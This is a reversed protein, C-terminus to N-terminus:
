VQQLGISQPIPSSQFVVNRWRCYLRLSSRPFIFCHTRQLAAHYQPLSHWSFCQFYPWLVSQILCFHHLVCNKILLKTSAGFLNPNQNHQMSNEWHRQNPTRQIPAPSPTHHCSTDTYLFLRPFLTNQM